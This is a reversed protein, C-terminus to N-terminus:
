SITLSYFKQMEVEKQPDLIDYYAKIMDSKHGTIKSVTEVPLNLYAALTIFTNRGVQSNLLKWKPLTMEEREKGIFYIRTVKENLSAEKGIYKLYEDYKEPLIVPLPNMEGSDKYKELIAKAAKVLPIRVSEETEQLNIILYNYKISSRRLSHIDEIQLGTFCSFMFLDRVKEFRFENEDFSLQNVRALEEITLYVGNSGPEQRRIKVEIDRYASSTHYGKKKAWRTFQIAMSIHNTIKENGWGEKLHHSSFLQAFQDNISKFELKYRLNFQTMNNKFYDWKRETAPAWNNKQSELEIYEGLLEMFGKPKSRNYSLRERLYEVTCDLKSIRAAREIEKPEEALADLLDNLLSAGKAGQKSRQKDSDWDQPSIREGTYYRLRHGRHHINIYIPAEGRKDELNKALYFRARM